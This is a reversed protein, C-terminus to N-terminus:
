ASQVIGALLAALRPVVRAGVELVETHSVEAEPTPDSIAKNTITSIGLVRMGAHRAVIASPVSSMGVADAGVRQLFRIEAPTEFNPGAVYAYTGEQLTFRERAAVEHALARLGRDYLASLDPFRPGIREDNPGRLPNQGALGPFNIHDSMLMLDGVNFSPNLGGAANTIILTGVGLRHMVRVPFTIQQQTYGEYFHVRGQMIMIAKGGMRGMVLRGGHGAVTPTPWHPIDAYAVAVADTLMDALSSLGSGLVLAIEPRFGPGCRVASARVADAAEAIQRDTIGPTM